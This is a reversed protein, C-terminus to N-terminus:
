FDLLLVRMECNELNKLNMHVIVKFISLLTMVETYRVRIGKKSMESPTQFVLFQPRAWISNRTLFGFALSANQM